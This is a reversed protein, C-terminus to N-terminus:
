RAVKRVRRPELQAPVEDATMSSIPVKRGVALHLAIANALNARGKRARAIVPLSIGTRLHLKNAAGKGQAKLYADLNRM